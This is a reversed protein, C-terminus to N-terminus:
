RRHRGHLLAKSVVGQSDKRGQGEFCRPKVKQLRQKRSSRAPLDFAATEDPQQAAGQMHHLYSLMRLRASFCMSASLSSASNSESAEKCAADLSKSRM